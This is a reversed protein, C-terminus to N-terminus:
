PPADHRGRGEGDKAAERRQFVRAHLPAGAVQQEVDDGDGQAGDDGAGVVPLLDGSEALLAQVPQPGEQRQGVADRRVVGELADELAQVGAREL